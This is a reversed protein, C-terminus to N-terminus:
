KLYKEWDDRERSGAVIWTNAAPVTPQFGLEWGLESLLHSDKDNNCKRCSAIVNMWEHKGGRSKPHIHDVTTARREECYACEFNDRNLVNRKNLAINREFPIKVYERLRIVSPWEWESSPSRVTRGEVAEVVDARGQVMLTVAREFSIVRIPEYSANLMLVNSNM